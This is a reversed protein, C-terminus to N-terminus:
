YLRMIKRDGGWVAEYRCERVDEYQNTIAEQRV